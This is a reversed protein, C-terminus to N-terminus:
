INIHKKTFEDLQEATLHKIFHNFMMSEMGYSECAEKYNEYAERYIEM